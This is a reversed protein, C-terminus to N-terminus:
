YSILLGYKELYKNIITIIKELGENSASEARAIIASETNSSRLLWWGNETNVRVGDIDNFIIKEERLREKVEQIVRLKLETPVFIKVEPTNYSKPLNEIIEDLTKDLRSLLDLFRLAAYIADDFGYYKDAFFIHGSMEGALLAKTESMKSKIFPHGTRWIIAQGGYSKIKDVILQSAKVDVIITANPNDKLIDEAFICLIQDGFLMKGNSSVIGLRDGDGDFAIGFDCNQEKVVKILEQLNALKTPDPHHSPFNGDIKSNIIINENSLHNKLEEIVDGTAGNGCDWAIKLKPNITIEELIRKLYQSQINNEHLTMGHGRWPIWDQKNNKQIAVDSVAGRLSPQNSWQIVDINALLEQIQEGFFPKGNQVLKFGNDDKPNHSGTVMISGSPTFQKDAFYLVPTPVVGLNIVESGADTLGKELAKYLTPSSLRGDIGVCIKTNDNTISMKAFCFGIKYAIQPTLDTLSNGRIDYARFIEKISASNSFNAVDDKYTRPHERVITREAGRSVSEKSKELNLKTYQEKIM